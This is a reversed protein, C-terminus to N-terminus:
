RFLTYRINLTSSATNNLVRVYRPLNEYVKIFSNASGATYIQYHAEDGYFTSNDGSVELFFSQSISSNGYLVIGRYGDMDVSPSTSASAGLVGSHMSSDAGRDFKSALVGNSDCQLTKFKNDGASNVGCMQISSLATSTSIPGSAALEVVDVLLRDGSSELPQLTGDDKRGYILVQQLQGGADIVGQGKSVCGAISSLHTNASSDDVKVSGASTMEVPRYNNNATDNAYIIQNSPM